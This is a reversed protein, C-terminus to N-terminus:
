EDGYDVGCERLRTRLEEMGRSVLKRAAEESIGSLEGIHRFGFGQLHLTIPVRRREPIEELCRALIQMREDSSARHEPRPGADPLTGLGQDEEAVPESPRVKGRRMADIVVSAVVRQIYSARFTGSRDREIARWLRIRVEQEVEDPDIGYNPLGYRHLLAKLRTAHENLLQELRQHDPDNTHGM